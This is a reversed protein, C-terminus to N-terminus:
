RGASRSGSPTVAVVSGRCAIRPASSTTSATGDCVSRPFRASQADTISESAVSTLRIFPMSSPVALRILWTM